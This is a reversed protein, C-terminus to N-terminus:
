RLFPVLPFSVIESAGLRQRVPLHGFLKRFSETAHNFKNVNRWLRHLCRPRVAPRAPRRNSQLSRASSGRRARQLLVPLELSWRFGAASRQLNQWRTRQPTRRASRVSFPEHLGIMVNIEQASSPLLGDRHIQILLDAQLFRDGRNTDVRSRRV